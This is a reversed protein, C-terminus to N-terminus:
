TFEPRNPPLLYLLTLGVAVVLAVSTSILGVLVTGAYLLVSIIYQVTRSRVFRPTLNQDILRYHAGYAWMCLWAFAPLFLGFCYFVVAIRAHDADRVYAALVVTPFPLFAICMLFLVNLLLFVHNVRKFLRIFSHHNVWYIGITIFSLLYAFYSPWLELLARALTKGKELSPVHIELILLTIAIAIVGDSFAEIRGTTSEGPGSNPPNSATVGPESM